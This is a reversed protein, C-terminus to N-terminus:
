TARSAFKEAQLRVIAPETLAGGSQRHVYVRWLLTLVLGIVIAIGILATLRRAM